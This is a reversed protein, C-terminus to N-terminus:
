MMQKNKKIQIQNLIPYKITSSMEGIKVSLNGKGYNLVAKFNM